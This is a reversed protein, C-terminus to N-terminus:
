EEKQAEEIWGKWMGAPEELHKNEVLFWQKPRTDTPLTFAQLERKSYAIGAATFAGNHVWCVPLSGCSFDFDLSPIGIKTGYKILFEEKEMNKPNVYFGM